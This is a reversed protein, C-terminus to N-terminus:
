AARPLGNATRNRYETPSQGTELRFFRNFNSLNGFGTDFCIAAVPMDTQRLLRCAQGIRLKRVFEVFNRGARRKFQRSFSTESMGALRAAEAMSLDGFLNERIYDMVTEFATDVAVSFIPSALRQREGAPARALLGILAFLRSLRELGQAEGIAALEAAARRATAGLFEIGCAAEDLLRNMEALEPFLASGRRFREGDFQIVTDRRAIVEGPALDSIWDHPLNPGILALHGAEFRGAYDGVLVKGTGERVLHLEYEPHHNWRAVPAPYDHEFWRFANVPDEPILERASHCGVLSSALGGGAEADPVPAAM